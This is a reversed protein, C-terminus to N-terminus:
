IRGLRGEGGTRHLTALMRALSRLHQMTRGPSGLQREDLVRQAREVWHRRQAVVQDM